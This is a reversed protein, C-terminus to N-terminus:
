QNIQITNGVSFAPYIIPEKISSGIKLSNLIIVELPPVHSPQGVGWQTLSENKKVIM